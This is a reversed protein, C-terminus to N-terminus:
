AAISEPPGHAQAPWRGLHTLIKEIVEPQEIFAIIRMASSFQPYLLPDAKYVQKILRAGAAQPGPSVRSLPVKAM